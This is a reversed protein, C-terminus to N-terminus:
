RRGHTADGSAAVRAFFQYIGNDGMGRADALEGAITAYLVKGSGSLIAVAPIGKKLQIGYSRALEVNRDFRGVNVKVVRFNKKILAASRGSHFSLELVQCDPCWNAGFVVILPVEATAAASLGAQIDESADANEDYPRGAAQSATAALFIFAALLINRM